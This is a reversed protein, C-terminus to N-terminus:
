NGRRKATAIDLDGLKIFFSASAEKPAPAASTDLLAATAPKLIFYGEDGKFPSAILELQLEKQDWKSAITLKYDKLTGQGIGPVYFDYYDATTTIVDKVTDRVVATKSLNCGTALLIFLGLVLFSKIINRM